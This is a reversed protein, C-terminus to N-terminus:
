KRGSSGLHAAIATRLEDLSLAEEDDLWADIEEPYARYYKIAVDLYEPSVMDFGMRVRSMDGHVKRVTRIVEYVDVNSGAVHARRGAPGDVFVIGPVRRMKEAELDSAAVM